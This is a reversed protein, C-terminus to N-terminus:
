QSLLCTLPPLSLSLSLPPLPNLIHTHTLPFLPFCLARSLACSFSLPFSVHRQANDSSGSKIEVGNGMEEDSDSDYPEDHAMNGLCGVLHRCLHVVTTDRPHVRERERGKGGWEGSVIAQSSVLIMHRLLFPQALLRRMLRCATAACWRNSVSSEALLAILIKGCGDSDPFSSLM